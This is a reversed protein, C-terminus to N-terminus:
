RDGLLITGAKIGGLLQRFLSQEGTKKGRCAGIACGLVTGTALSLLVVFRLIPNGLGLKQNKSQPYEVQNAPTDAMIATSGDAIEINRGHLKWDNPAQDHQENGIDLALGSLVVEPLRQRAACYSTTETSCAPLGKELRDVLVRGVAAECSGDKTLIQSLFALVTTVPGYIRDRFRYGAQQCAALIREASLLTQFSLGKSKELGDLESQVQESVSGKSSQVM